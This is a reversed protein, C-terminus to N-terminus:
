DEFPSVRAGFVAGVADPLVRPQRIADELAAAISEELELLSEESSKRKGESVAIRSAQIDALQRRERELEELATDVLETLTARTVLQELSADRIQGCHAAWTDPAYFQADALVSWDEVRLNHDIRNDYPRVFWADAAPDLEQGDEDMWVHELRPPFLRDARRRLSALTLGPFRELLPDLKSLDAEIVWDFRFVLSPETGLRRDTRFFAWATGRDDRRVFDAIRTVLPHGVRLLSVGRRVALSRSFACYGTTLQERRLSEFLGETQGSLLHSMPVLTPNRGSGRAVFRYTQAGSPGEADVSFDLPDRAFDTFSKEFSIGLDLDAEDLEEFESEVKLDEEAADLRDQAEIRKLMADAGTEPEAIAEGVTAVGDTGETFALEPLASLYRHIEYQLSAVSRDFVRLGQDLVRVWAAEYPQGQAVLLFSKTENRQLIRDLRGIRQEIRNPNFPLDYHIVQHSQRQLNLGEEASRDSVLITAQQEAERGTGVLVAALGEGTLHTVIRRATTVEDVFIVVKNGETPSLTLILRHLAALRPEDRAGRALSALRALYDEEVPLLPANTAGALRRELFPNATQPDSCVRELVEMFFAALEAQHADDVAGSAVSRWEDLAEAIRLREEDRYEVVSAGGRARLDDIVQTRRTRLLRRHLSYTEQLHNRLSRVAACRDPNDPEASTLRRAEELLDSLRGDGRAVPELMEIAQELFYEPVDDELLFTNADAISQRAEVRRRFGGVEDLRYVEPDLLHLMALFGEENQLVPTASLLLLRSWRQALAELAAYAGDSSWAARAVQHAEDVVLMGDARGVQRWAESGVAVVVVGKEATPDDHISPGLGLRVDLENDWQEVLHDPVVVLVFHDDPNDLVYQRIVLGAEVTKGLGVEDALLYRQVPDRLIRRVVAYQHRFLRVPASALGTFGRYAARQERLAQVFGARGDHWYPSENLHAGLMDIPDQTEPRARVRVKSFPVWRNDGNPFRVHLHPEQAIADQPLAEHSVPTSLVRGARWRDDLFCYVRQQTQLPEWKLSDASVLQVLEEQLPSLFYQVRAVDGAAEALRGVGLGNASSSVFTPAQM